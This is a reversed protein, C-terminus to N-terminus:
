SSCSCQYVMSGWLRTRTCVIFGLHFAAFCLMEDPDASNALTVVFDNVMKLNTQKNTQKTAKRGLDVAITM